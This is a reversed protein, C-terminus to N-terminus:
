EERKKVIVKAKKIVKGKFLVSPEITEKIIDEDLNKEKEISLVELSLGENYKKNTFDVTEIDQKEFYRKIKGLSMTISKRQPDDLNDFIKQLRLELRWVEIALEALDNVEYSINTPALLYRLEDLFLKSENKNSLKQFIFFALVLISLLLFVILALILWVLLPVM